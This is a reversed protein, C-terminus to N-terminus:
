SSSRDRSQETTRAKAPPGLSRKRDRRKAFVEDWDPVLRASAMDGIPLEYKTGDVEILVTAEQGIEETSAANSSATKGAIPGSSHNVAVLMGTFNRRGAIGNRLTVRATEGVFRQFHAPKRLPRDLGPSSVELEYSHAIPDEVDLVASLERSVRECDIFGIDSGDRVREAVEAQRDFPRGGPRGAIQEADNPQSGVLQDGALEVSDLHEIFVRLVWGRNSNVLTVDVLEYGAGNCVPEIIQWLKDTITAAAKMGKACFFTPLLGGRM